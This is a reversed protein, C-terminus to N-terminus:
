NSKITVNNINLEKGNITIKKGNLTGGTTVASLKDPECYRIASGTDGNERTYTIRVKAPCPHNAGFLLGKDTDKAIVVGLAAALGKYADKRARWAFRVAGINGVSGGVNIYLVQSKAEKAM